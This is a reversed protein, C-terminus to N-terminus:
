YRYRYRQVLVITCDVFHGRVRSRYRSNVSVATGQSVDNSSLFRQTSSYQEDVSFLLSISISVASSGFHSDFDSDFDSGFDSDAVSVSNASTFIRMVTMKM